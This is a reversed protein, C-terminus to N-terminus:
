SETRAAWYNYFRRGVITGWQVGRPFNTKGEKAACIRRRKQKQRSEHLTARQRVRLAPASNADRLLCHSPGLTPRLSSRLSSRLRCRPTIHLAIEDPEGPHRVRHLIPPWTYESRRSFSLGWLKVEHFNNKLLLNCSNSEGLSFRHDLLGTAM